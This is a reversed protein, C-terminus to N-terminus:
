CADFASRIWDIEIGRVHAALAIVDFRAPHRAWAPYQQLYQSACRSIRAQKFRDVSELASGYHARRRYRVEVFILNDSDRMILDIEGRRCRYNRALLSLGQQQLFQCALTEADDGGNLQAPQPPRYLITM